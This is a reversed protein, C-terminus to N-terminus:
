NIQTLEASYITGSGGAILPFVYFYVLPNNPIFSILLHGQQETVDGGSYSPAVVWRWALNTNISDVAIDILYIKGVILSPYVFCVNMISWDYLQSTGINKITVYSGGPMASFVTSAAINMYNQGVYPTGPTLVVNTPPTTSLQQLGNSQRVQNIIALRMNAPLPAPKMRTPVVQTPLAIKQLTQQATYVKIPQVTTTQTQLPLIMTQSSVIVPFAALLSVIMAFILKYEKM